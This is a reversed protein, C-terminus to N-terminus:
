HTDIALTLANSAAHGWIVGCSISWFIDTLNKSCCSSCKVMQIFRMRWMKLIHLPWTAIQSDFSSASIINPEGIRWVPSAIISCGSTEWVTYQGEEQETKIQHHVERDQDGRRRVCLQQQGGGQGGQAQGGRDREHRRWLVRWELWSHDSGTVFYVPLNECKKELIM